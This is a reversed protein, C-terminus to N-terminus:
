QSMSSPPHGQMFDLVNRIGPMACGIAARALAVSDACKSATLYPQMNLKEQAQRQLRAHCRRKGCERPGVVPTSSIAIANAFRTGTFAVVRLTMVERGTDPVIVATPPWRGVECKLEEIQMFPCRQATSRLLTFSVSGRTTALSHSCLTAVGLGALCVCCSCRRVCGRVCHIGDACQAGIASAHMHGHAWCLGQLANLSCAWAEHLRAAHQDCRTCSCRRPKQQKSSVICSQRSRSHWTSKTSQGGLKAKRDAAML